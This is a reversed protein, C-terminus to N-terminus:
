QGQQLTADPGAPGGGNEAAQREAIEEQIKALLEPKNMKAPNEINLDEAMEVLQAKSMYKLAVTVEGEEATEGGEDEALRELAQGFEHVRGYVREVFPLGSNPEFGYLRELREYEEIPDVERPPMNPPNKEDVEVAKGHVAELLPLEHRGVIRAVKEAIDRHIVATVLAIKM